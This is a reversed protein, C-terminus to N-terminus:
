RRGSGNRRSGRDDRERDGRDNQERLRARERETDVAFDSHRADGAGDQGAQINAGDRLRNLRRPNPARSGVTVGQRRFAQSASGTREFEHKIAHYYLHAVHEEDTVGHRDIGYQATREQQIDRLAAQYRLGAIGEPDIVNHREIGFQAPADHEIDFWAAQLRVARIHEDSTVGYRDISTQAAEGQEVDRLALVHRREDVVKLQYSIDTMAVNYAHGSIHNEGLADEIRSHLTAAHQEFDEPPLRDINDQLNELYIALAKTAARQQFESLGPDLMQRRFDALDEASTTKPVRLWDRKRWAARAITAAPEDPKDPSDSYESRWILSPRVVSQEEGNTRWYVNWHKIAEVQQVAYAAEAKKAARILDADSIGDDFPDKESLLGILDRNSIDHDIFDEEDPKPM